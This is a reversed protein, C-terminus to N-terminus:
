PPTVVRVDGGSLGIDWPASTTGGRDLDLLGQRMPTGPPLAFRAHLDAVAPAAGPEVRVVQSVEIHSGAPLVDGQRLAKVFGYYLQAASGSGALFWAIRDASAGWAGDWARRRHFVSFGDYVVQVGDGPQYRYGAPPSAAGPVDTFGGAGGYRLLTPAAGGAVHRWGGDISNGEVGTQKLAATTDMAIAELLTSGDWAWVTATRLAGLGAALDESYDSETAPFRVFAVGHAQDWGIQYPEVVRGVSWLTVTGRPSFVYFNFTQGGLSIGPAPGDHAYFLRRLGLPGSKVIKVALCGLRWGKRGPPDVLLHCDDARLVPGVPTPTAPDVALVVDLGLVDSVFRESRETVPGPSEVVHGPAPVRLGGVADVDAADYIPDAYVLVQLKGAAPGVTLTSGSSAVSGSVVRLRIPGLKFVGGAVAAPAASLAVELAADAPAGSWTVDLLGGDLIHYLLRGEGVSGDDWTVRNFWLAGLPTPMWDLSRSGKTEGLIALPRRAGQAPVIRASVAGDASRVAATQEWGRLM